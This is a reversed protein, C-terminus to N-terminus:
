HWQLRPWEGIQMTWTDTFNWGSFQTKTILNGRGNATTYVKRNDAYTYYPITDLAGQNNSGGGAETQQTLTRDFYTNTTVLRGTVGPAGYIYGVLGGARRYEDTGTTRGTVYSNKITVNGATRIDVSGVLGGAPNGMVTGTAYSNAITIGGTVGTNIFADGVLGGAFYGSVVDATAYSATISGNLMTGVLGGVIGGGDVSKVSGGEVGVNSITGASRGALAGVHDEGEISPNDTGRDALILKLNRVEGGAGIAGFFGVYTERPKLIKLNSITKGNGEFIGTFPTGSHTPTSGTGIPEFNETLTIDNVLVFGGSPNDRMKQFDEETSIPVYNEFPGVENLGVENLGVENLGVENLGVENLGVENLGVENCSTVAISIVLAAICYLVRSSQKKQTRNSHKM